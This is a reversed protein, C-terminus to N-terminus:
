DSATDSEAFIIGAPATDLIARLRAASQRLELRAQVQHSLIALAKAQGPSLSRPLIDIVCLTGIAVGDGAYLPM